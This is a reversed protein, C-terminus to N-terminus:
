RPFANDIALALIGHSPGRRGGARILAHGAIDERFADRGDLVENVRDPPRNGEPAQERADEADNHDQERANAGLDRPTRPVAGPKVEFVLLLELQELLPCRM